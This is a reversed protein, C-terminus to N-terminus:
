LISKSCEIVLEKICANKSLQMIFRIANLLDEPQIMEEDLFPTNAEKAMQTNVWGPCLTTV